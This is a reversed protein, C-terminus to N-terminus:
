SCERTLSVATCELKFGSSSRKTSNYADSIRGIIRAKLYPGVNIFPIGVVEGIDEAGLANRKIRDARGISFRGSQTDTKGGRRHDTASSVVLNPDVPNSGSDQTITTSPPTTIIAPIRQTKSGFLQSLGPISFSFPITVNRAERARLGSRMHLNSLVGCINIPPGCTSLLAVGGYWAKKYALVIALALMTSVVGTAVGYLMVLKMISNTSSVTSKKRTMLYSLYISITSDTVVILSNWVTISWHGLSAPDDASFKDVYSRYNVFLGFASTTTILAGLPIMARIDKGFSWLRSAFFAHAIM